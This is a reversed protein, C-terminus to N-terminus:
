DGLDDSSRLIWKELLVVFWNLSGDSKLIIFINRIWKGPRETLYYFASPKWNSFFRCNNRIRYGTTSHSSSQHRNDKKTRLIAYLNLIKTKVKFNLYILKSIKLSKDLIVSGALPQIAARGWNMLEIDFAKWQGVWQKELKKNQFTEFRSFLQFILEIIIPLSKM